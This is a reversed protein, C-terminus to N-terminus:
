RSASGVRSGLSRVDRIMAKSPRGATQAQPREALAAVNRGILDHAGARQVARTLANHAIQVSRTSRTKAISILARRM